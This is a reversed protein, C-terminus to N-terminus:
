GRVRYPTMAQEASNVTKTGTGLVTEAHRVLTVYREYSKDYEYFANHVVLAPAWDPNDRETELLRVHTEVVEAGAAVALAGTLPHATHDSYGVRWGPRGCLNRYEGLTTILGLNAAELPCPYASVCHLIMDRPGLRETLNWLEDESTMGASVVIGTKRLMAWRRNEDWFARDMAEFSAVKFLSVLPAVIRVDEPLYTTVMFGVGAADAEAKLLELWNRPMQYHHYIERYYAPVQRRDALRDASSWFQFKVADCGAEAAARVLRVANVLDNDHASAIEAILFTRPM